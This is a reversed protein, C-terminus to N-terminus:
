SQPEANDSHRAKFNNCLLTARSIQHRERSAQEDDRKILLGTENTTNLLYDGPPFTDVTITHMYENIFKDIEQEMKGHLQGALLLIAKIQRHTGQIPQTRIDCQGEPSISVRIENMPGYNEHTMDKDAHAYLKDRLEMIEKHLKKQDDLIIEVDFKGFGWCKTFPRGYSTYIAVVLSNYASDNMQIPTELIYKCIDIVTAFAHAAHIRLAFLRREELTANKM